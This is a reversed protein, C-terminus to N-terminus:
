RAAVSTTIELKKSGREITFTVSDGGKRTKMFNYYDRIGKFPIITGDVKAGTIRDGYLFGAKSAPTEPLIELVILETPSSIGTKIGLLVPVDSFNGKRFKLPVASSDIDHSHKTLYADFSTNFDALDNQFYVAKLYILNESAKQWNPEGQTVLGDKVSTIIDVAKPLVKIVQQKFGELSSNTTKLRPLEQEVFEITSKSVYINDDIRRHDNAFADMTKNRGLACLDYAYFLKDVLQCFRNLFLSDSLVDPLKTTRSGLFETGNAKATRRKNSELLDRIYNIPIAFNLNQADRVGAATMGIVLGHSDFLAGGSSGSSIPVSIQLLKYDDITRFGSILGDTLTLEFGSPSAIGVVHEGVKLNKSNGLKVTPLDSARITFLAIDKDDDIDLIDTAIYTQGNSLKVTVKVANELVHANTAIIGDSKVIFGSGQKSPTPDADEHVYLTVVASKNQEFIAQPTLAKKQAFLMSPMLTM